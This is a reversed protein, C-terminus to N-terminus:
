PLQKKVETQDQKNLQNFGPLSDGGAFYSLESRLKAFCEVHHWRDMGGYKM